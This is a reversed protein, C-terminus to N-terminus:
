EHNYVFPTCSGREMLDQHTYRKPNPLGPVGQRYCILSPFLRIVTLVWMYIYIYHMEIKHIYYYCYEQTEFFLNLMSTIMKHTQDNGM